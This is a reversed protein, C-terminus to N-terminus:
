GEKVHLILAIGMIVVSCTASLSALYAPLSGNIGLITIVENSFFLFFGSSLGYFIIKPSSIFRAPKLSFSAAILVLGCMLFPRALLKYFYSSHQLASYGASKLISIFHGLKWISISQPDIFSNKLDYEKFETPLEMSDSIAALKHVQLVTPNKLMWYGDKLMVKPVDIREIFNYNQDLVLFSVDALEAENVNLYRAQVVRKEGNSSYFKDMFWLGSNSFSLINGSGSGLYYKSSMKRNYEMLVTSLPNLIAVFIIGIVFSVTVFPFLLQWISVGSAKIITYENKQSLRTFALIAAIFILFPVSEHLLYPIKAFALKTVLIFSVNKNVARTLLDIYNSVVFVATVGSIVIGIAQLFQKSLYIFLIPYM